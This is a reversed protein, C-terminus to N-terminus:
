GDLFPRSLGGSAVAGSESKQFEDVIRKLASGLEGTLCKNAHKCTHIYSYEYIYIHTYM